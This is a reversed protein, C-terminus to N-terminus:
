PSGCAKQARLLAPSNASVGPPPAEGIGGNKFVPDPFNPVGHHRMCRSFALAARRQAATAKPPGSSGTAKKMCIKLASRFAPAHIDISSPIVVGLISVQVGADGTRPGGPDPLNTLGHARMCKSFALGADDNAGTTSTGGGAASGCAALALCALLAGTTATLHARM